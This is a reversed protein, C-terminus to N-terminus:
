PQCPYVELFHEPTLIALEPFKLEARKFDSINRTILADAGGAVALEILHNDGEDSLKPRWAFYVEVWRARKLLAAFAETREAPTTKSRSFLGTRSLVDEYECFLTVGFLPEYEGRLCARLIARCHSGDSSSLLATIFINTDLVVAVM